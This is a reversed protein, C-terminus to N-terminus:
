NLEATTATREEEKQEEEEELRYNKKGKQIHENKNNHRLKRAEKQTM